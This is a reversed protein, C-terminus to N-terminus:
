YFMLDKNWFYVPASLVSSPCLPLQNFPKKIGFIDMSLLTGIHRSLLWWSFLLFMLLLLLESFRSYVHYLLLIPFSDLMTLHPKPDKTTQFDLLKGGLRFKKLCESKYIYALSSTAWYVNTKLSAHHQCWLNLGGSCEKEERRSLQKYRWYLLLFPCIHTNLIIYRSPIQLDEWGGHTKMVKVKALHAINSCEFILNCKSLQNLLM